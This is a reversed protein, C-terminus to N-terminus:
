ADAMEIVATQGNDILGFSSNIVRGLPDNIKVPIVTGKLKSIILEATGDGGDAIPFCETTCNLSSQNFGERIAEAAAQATISNKFANPAILIHM